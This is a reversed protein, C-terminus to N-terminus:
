QTQEKPTFNDVSNKKNPKIKTCVMCEFAPFILDEDEYICKDCYEKQIREWEANM